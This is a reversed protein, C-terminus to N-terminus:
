KSFKLQAPASLFKGLSAAEEELRARLPKSFKQFLEVELTIGSSSRSFSWIGAVRGDLLVVPMIWWADRYIKKYHEDAVLHKKSSHALLYPDFSPLLRLVVRGAGAEALRRLSSVRVWAREGGVSVEEMENAMSDWVPKVEKMTIGSWRSFDRPTAPGYSGLYRYVLTRQAQEADVELSKPLWHDSRVYTIERGQVPGYCILGEIVAPRIPISVKAMWAKVNRSIKRQIITKVEGNTLPGAALAQVISENLEDLELPTVHFKSMVQLLAARRSRRLAGIYLAFEATPILHLTQRMLSTRVLTRNKELANRIEARTLNHNRTWLQLEAASMVQAQIGCVQSCIQPADGSSTEILHHAAMRFAAVQSHTFNLSSKTKRQMDKRSFIMVM